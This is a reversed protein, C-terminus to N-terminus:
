RYSAEFPEKEERGLVEEVPIAYQKGGVTVWVTAIDNEAGSLAEAIFEEKTRM